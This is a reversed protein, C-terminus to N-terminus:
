WNNAVGVIVAIRFLAEVVDKFIQRSKVDIRPLVMIQDGPRVVPDSGGIGLFGRGRSSEEFSGDRHAVVIRSADANQTYGGANRIYDSLTLSGDYAITNPFIVEGSVFVLGDKVPVRLVDGSELLLEDRDTAQAIFIQGSPEVSKGREVWKLLLEAEEKRLQAEEITGSRATLAANELFKLTVQLAQRQREKSSLRFLQLSAIDSQASFTVQRLLEGLRTGYPLVYEQASRHEGEVRVSITGPRKDATFEVEDGNSLEVSSAEALAFYETHRVTGSNRVVRVHTAQARPKALRILSSVALATQSFEFRKANEALGGVKVTNQRSGVFVVDGDSLQILPLQGALLFDYLSMSTRTLSGRKVQVNLFSGREPDIGGAQDLYHLLSDMSTGSYLGPRNVFGSVFIRVPQAAALSAYSYVNARFVKSAGLEVLRQLDQNRVGLVQIPGVHPLFINGRADVTLPADFEFAGWLRVQIKDGVAIAYDPNFPTAGERAFSGTFLNAGFVDSNLNATYDFFQPAPIRLDAPVAAPVAPVPQPQRALTGPGRLPLTSQAASPVAFGLPDSLAASALTSMLSLLLLVLIRALVSRHWSGVQERGVWWVPQPKNTTRLLSLLVIM